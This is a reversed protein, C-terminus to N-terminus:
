GKLVKLEFISDKRFRFLRQSDPFFPLHFFLPLTWLSSVNKEEKKKYLGILSDYVTEVL